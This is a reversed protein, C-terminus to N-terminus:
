DTFVACADTHQSYYITIAVDDGDDDDTVVVVIHRGVLFVDVKTRYHLM